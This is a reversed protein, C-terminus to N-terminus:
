VAGRTPAAPRGAGPRLRPDAVVARQAPLGPRRCRHEPTPRVLKGVITLAGATRLPQGTMQRDM